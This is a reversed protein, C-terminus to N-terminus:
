IHSKSTGFHFKFFFTRRFTIDTRNVACYNSLTTSLIYAIYYKCSFSPVRLLGLCMVLHNQQLVYFRISCVKM